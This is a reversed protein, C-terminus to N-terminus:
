PKLPESHRSISGVKVFNKKLPPLETNGTTCKKSGRPSNTQSSPSTPPGPLLQSRSLQQRTRPNSPVLRQTAASSGNVNGLIKKSQNTIPQSPNTKMLSAEPIKGPKKGVSFSEGASCTTTSKSTKLNRGGLIRKMFGKNEKNNDKSDTSLTQGEQVDPNEGKENSNVRIEQFPKVGCRRLGGSINPDLEDM